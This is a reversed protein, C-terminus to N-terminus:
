RCLNSTALLASCTGFKKYLDLIKNRYDARGIIVLFLDYDVFYGVIQYRQWEVAVVTAALITKWEREKNPYRQPVRKGATRVVSFQIGLHM